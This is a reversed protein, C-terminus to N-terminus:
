EIDIVSAHYQSLRCSYIRIIRVISDFCVKILALTGLMM